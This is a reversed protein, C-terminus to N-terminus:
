NFIQILLLLYLNRAYLYKLSYKELFEYMGIIKDVISVIWSEMYKPLTVNIPFMHSEIINQEKDSLDFYEIANKLAEKPHTFLSIIRDKKTRENDSYFFDHLLGARAAAIYDLHMLKCMKYSYYSVKKSHKLRSTGHHEITELKNFKKNELIDEILIYYDHEFM